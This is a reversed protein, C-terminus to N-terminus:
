PAELASLVRHVVQDLHDWLYFHGGPFLDVGGFSRSHTGWDELRVRHLAPDSAGALISLPTNLVANAPAQYTEYVRFDARVIPLVLELLERQALLEAPLGGLKQLRELLASVPLASYREEQHIAAPPPCASILLARPALAGSSELQRTLEFGVLGGLSHGVVVWPLAEGGELEALGARLSTVLEEMSTLLPDRFRTERGPAQAM